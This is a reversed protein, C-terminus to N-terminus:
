KTKIHRLVNRYLSVESMSNYFLYVVPHLLRRIYLTDMNGITTVSYFLPIHYVFYSTLTKMQWLIVRYDASMYICFNTLEEFILGYSLLHFVVPYSVFKLDKIIMRLSHEELSLKERYIDPKLM